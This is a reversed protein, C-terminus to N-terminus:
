KNNKGWKELGAAHKLTYPYEVDARHGVFWDRVLEIALDLQDWPLCTDKDVDGPANAWSVSRIIPKGDIPNRSTFMVNLFPGYEDWEASLWLSNEGVWSEANSENSRIDIDEADGSRTVIHPDGPSHALQILTQLLNDAKRAFEGNYSEKM